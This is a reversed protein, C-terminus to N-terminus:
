VHRKSEPLHKCMDIFQKEKNQLDNKIKISLDVLYQESGGQKLLKIANNTNDIDQLVQQVKELDKVIVLGNKNYQNSIKNEIQDKSNSSINLILQLKEFNKQLRSIKRLIGDNKDGISNSTIIRISKELGKTSKDVKQNFKKTKKQISINNFENKFPTIQISNLDFIIKNAKALLIQKKIKLFNEFNRTYTKESETTKNKLLEKDILDYTRLKKDIKCLSISIGKIEKLTKQKRVKKPFVMQNDALRKLASNIEFFDKDNSNKIYANSKNKIDLINQEYNNIYSEIPSELVMSNKAM